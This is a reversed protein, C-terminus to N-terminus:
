NMLAGIMQAASGDKRPVYKQMRWLDLFKGNLDFVQIRSMIRDAVYV